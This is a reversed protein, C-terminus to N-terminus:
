ANNKAAKGWTDNSPPCQSSKQNIPPNGGGEKVEESPKHLIINGAGALFSNRRHAL